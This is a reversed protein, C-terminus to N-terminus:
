YEMITKIGLDDIMMVICQSLSCLSLSLSLSQKSEHKEKCCSLETPYCKVKFYVVCIIPTPPLNFHSTRAERRWTECSKKGLM